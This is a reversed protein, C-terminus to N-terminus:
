RDQHCSGNVAISDPLSLIVRDCLWVASGPDVRDLDYRTLFGLDNPYSSSRIRGLRLVRCTTALSHLRRIQSTYPIELNGSPDTLQRPRRLFEGELSGPGDQERM